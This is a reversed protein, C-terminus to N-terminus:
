GLQWVDSNSNVQGVIGLHCQDLGTKSDKLTYLFAKPPIRIIQDVGETDKFTM